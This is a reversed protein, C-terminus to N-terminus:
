SPKLTFELSQDLAPSDHRFPGAVSHKTRKITSLQWREFCRPQVRAASYVIAQYFGCLSQGVIQGAASSSLANVRMHVKSSNDFACCGSRPISLIRVRRIWRRPLETPESVAMATACDLDFKTEASGRIFKPIHQIVTPSKPRAQRSNRLFPHASVFAWRGFHAPIDPKGRYSLPRTPLGSEFKRMASNFREPGGRVFWGSGAIRGCGTAPALSSDLLQPSTPCPRAATLLLHGTVSPKRRARRLRSPAARANLVHAESM